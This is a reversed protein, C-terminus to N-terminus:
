EAELDINSSNSKLVNSALYLLFVVGIYQIIQFILPPEIIVLSIGIVVM